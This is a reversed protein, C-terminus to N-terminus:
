ISVLDLFTTDCFENDRIFQMYHGEIRMLCM